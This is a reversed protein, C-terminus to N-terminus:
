QSRVSFSKGRPKLKRILHLVRVKFLYYLIPRSKSWSHPTFWWPSCKSLVLKLKQPKEPVELQLFNLKQQTTQFPLIFKGTSREGYFLMYILFFFFAYGCAHICVCARICFCKYLCIHRHVRACVCEYVHVSNGVVRWVLFPWLQYFSM